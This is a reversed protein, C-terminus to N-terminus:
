RLASSKEKVLSQRDPEVTRRNRHTPTAGPPAPRPAAIHHARRAEDRQQKTGALGVLEVPAVLIDLAGALRHAHFHRMHPQARRARHVYPGIWALRLLHQEVRM